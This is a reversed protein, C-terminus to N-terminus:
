VMHEESKCRINSVDCKPVLYYNTFLLSDKVPYKDLSKDKKNAKILYHDPGAFVMSSEDNVEFPNTANDWKEDCLYEGCDKVTAYWKYYTAPYKHVEEQILKQYAELYKQPSGYYLSVLGDCFEIWLKYDGFEPIYYKLRKSFDSEPVFGRVLYDKYIELIHRSKDACCSSGTRTRALTQIHSEMFDYNMFLFKIKGSNKMDYPPECMEFAIFELISNIQYCIMTSFTDPNNLDYGLANFKAILDGYNTKIKENKSNTIGSFIAGFVEKMEDKEKSM